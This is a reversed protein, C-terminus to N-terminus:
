KPKMATVIGKEINHILIDEGLDKMGIVEKEEDTLSRLTENLENLRSQALELLNVDTVGEKTELSVLENLRVKTHLAPNFVFVERFDIFGAMDLFHKMEDKRQFYRKKVLSTFGALQDKKRIVKQFIPQTKENLYLEWIILKGGPKLVRFFENVIVQQDIYPNEHLGMKIVVKDFFADEYPLSKM